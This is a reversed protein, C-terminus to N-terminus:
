KGEGYEVMHKLDEINDRIWAYLIDLADQASGDVHDVFVRGYSAFWFWRGPSMTIRIEPDDSKATWLGDPNHTRKFVIERQGWRLDVEEDMKKGM